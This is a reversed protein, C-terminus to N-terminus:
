ARTQYFATLNSWDPPAGVGTMTIVNGAITYDVGPFLHANNLFLLVGGGAPAHALTFTKNVGDFTGAPVENFILRLPSASFEVAQKGAADAYLATIRQRPTPDDPTSSGDILGFLPVLM